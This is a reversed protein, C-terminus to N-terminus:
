GAKRHLLNEENFSIHFKQMLEGMFIADFSIMFHFIALLWPKIQPQSGQNQPSDPDFVTSATEITPTNQEHFKM